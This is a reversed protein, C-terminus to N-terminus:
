KEARRSLDLLLDFRITKDRIEPSDYQSIQNTQKPHKAFIFQILLLCVSVCFPRVAHGFFPSFTLLM